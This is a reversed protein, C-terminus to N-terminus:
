TSSGKTTPPHDFTASSARSDTRRRRKTPARRSRRSPREGVHRHLPRHPLHLHLGAPLRRLGRPAHDGRQRRRHGLDRRSRRRHRAGAVASFILGLLVGLLIHGAIMNAFLRVALAFTKAGLGIIEVPILLPALWLPGPCFHKIYAMGGFRLGNVVMLILTLIALTATVWINGTAAGGIHTGFLASIPHLPLLGLLNITLVFFFASWVYQIFRDTHVGLVPEAIEKRLYQCVTEVFNGFGTPVLRGIPDAGAHRRLLLPLVFMLLLGAVIMMVIQDSLVTIVGRPTLMGLDAPIEKLPHQIVHSLPNEPAMRCTESRGEHFDVGAERAPPGVVVLNGGRAARRLERGAHLATDASGLPRRPGSGLGGDLRGAASLPEGQRHRRHAVRARWSRPETGAKGAIEQALPLAGALSGAFSALCGAWISSGAEPVGLKAAVVQGLLGLALTAAAGVGAFGLWIEPKRAGTVAAATGKGVGSRARSGGPLGLSVGQDPQLVRRHSGLLAGILLGWPSSDYHRDIWYGLLAFGGVAAALEVGTGALRM